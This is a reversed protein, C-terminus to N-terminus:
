LRPPINPDQGTWGQTTWYESREDINVVDFVNMIDEVNDIQDHNLGSVAVLTNGEHIAQDYLPAKEEPVGLDILSATVGGTVAGVGAGVLGALLPGMAVIPGIGPILLVGLGLTLGILGGEIGGVVAGESGSVDEDQYVTNGNIYAGYRDDTNAAVVSIQENSYNAEKLAGVVKQAEAMDQYVGVVTSM